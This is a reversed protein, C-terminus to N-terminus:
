CPCHVFENAAGAGVNAAVKENPPKLPFSTPPLLVPLLLSPPKAPKPPKEGPARVYPLAGDPPQPENPPKRSSVSSSLALAGADVTLLGKAPNNEPPPLLPPPPPVGAVDGPLDHRNPQESPPKGGRFFCTLNNYSSSSSIYSLFDTLVVTCYLVYQETARPAHDHDHDHICRKHYLVIRCSLM